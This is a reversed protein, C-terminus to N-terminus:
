DFDSKEEEIEEKCTAIWWSTIHTLKRSELENDNQVFGQNQFWEFQSDALQWIVFGWIM